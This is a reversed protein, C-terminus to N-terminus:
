RVAAAGSTLRPAAYHPQRGCSGPPAHGNTDGVYRASSGSRDGQREERSKRMMQHAPAMVTKPLKREKTARGKWSLSSVPEGTVTPASPATSSTGSITKPSYPPASAPAKSRRLSITRVSDARPRTAAPSSSFVESGCGMTQGSYAAPASVAGQDADLPRGQVREDRPDDVVVLEARGGREARQAPLDAADRAGRQRPQEDRVGPQRRRVRDVRDGERDGEAEPEPQTGGGGRM